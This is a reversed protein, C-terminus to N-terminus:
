EGLAEQQKHISAPKQDVVQRRGSYWLPSLMAYFVALWRFPFSELDSWPSSGVSAGQVVYRYRSRSEYTRGPKPWVVRSSM